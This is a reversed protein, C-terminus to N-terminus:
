EAVAVDWLGDKSGSVFRKRYRCVVSRYVLFVPPGTVNACRVRTTGDGM